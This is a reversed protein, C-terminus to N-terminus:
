LQSEENLEGKLFQNEYAESLPDTIRKEWLRDIVAFQPHQKLVELSSHDFYVFDSDEGRVLLREGICKAGLRYTLENTKRTNRTYTIMFPNSECNIEKVALGLIIDALAYNKRYEPDIALYGFTRTIVGRSVQALKEVILEPYNSFYNHKRHIPNTLDFRDVLALGVVKDRHVLVIAKDHRCFEESTSSMQLNIETFAKNWHFHWFSFAQHYISKLRKGWYKGPLIYLSLDQYMELQSQSYLHSYHEKIFHRM